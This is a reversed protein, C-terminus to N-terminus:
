DCQRPLRQQRSLVSIAMTRESFSGDATHECTAGLRIWEDGLGTSMGGNLMAELQMGEAEYSVQQLLLRARVQQLAQLNGAEHCVSTLGYRVFQEFSPLSERDRRM